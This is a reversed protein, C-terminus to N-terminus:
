TDVFAVSAITKCFRDKSELGMDILAPAFPALSQATLNLNNCFNSAKHYIMFIATQRASNLCTCKPTAPPPKAWLTPYFLSRKTQSCCRTLWLFTGVNSFEYCWSSKVCKFSEFGLLIGFTQLIKTIKLGMAISTYHVDRM